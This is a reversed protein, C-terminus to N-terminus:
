ATRERGFWELYFAIRESLNVKDPMNAIRTRVREFMALEDPVPCDQGHDPVLTGCRPCLHQGHQDQYITM